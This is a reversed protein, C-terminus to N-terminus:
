RLTAVTTVVLRTVSQCPTHRVLWCAYYYRPVVVNVVAHGIYKGNVLSLTNVVVHRPQHGALLWRRSMRTKMLTINISLAYYGIHSDHRASTVVTHRSLTANVLATVFTDFSSAADNRLRYGDYEDAHIESKVYEIRPAANMERADYHCSALLGSIAHRRM